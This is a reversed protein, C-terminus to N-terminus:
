EEVEEDIPEEEPEETNPNGLMGGLLGNGLPASRMARYDLSITGVDTWIRNSGMLTSIQHPTLQYTANRYLRYCIQVPSASLWSQLEQVTSVNPINQLGVTMENNTFIAIQSGGSGNAAISMFRDAKIYANSTRSYLMHNTAYKKLFFRNYTGKEIKIETGDLQASEWKATLVGTVLDLTGGLVEGAETQWTIPYDHSIPEVYTTKGDWSVMVDKIRGRSNTDGASTTIVYGKQKLTKGDSSTRTQIGHNNAGYTINSIYNSTGDTYYFYDRFTFQGSSNSGYHGTISLRKGERNGCSCIGLTNSWQKVRGGYFGYFPDDPDTILAMSGGSVTYYDNNWLNENRTYFNLGTYGHIPRINQVANSAQIFWAYQSPQERASNYRNAVTVYGNVSTVTIPNGKGVGNTGSSAGSGVNGALFFVDQTSHYPFNPTSMTFEGDGVNIPTYIVTTDSSWVFDSPFYNTGGVSPDGSGEQNPTFSIELKKVSRNVADDISIFEGSASKVPFPNLRTRNVVIGM